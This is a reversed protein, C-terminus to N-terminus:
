QTTTGGRGEGRSSGDAGHRTVAFRAEDGGYRTTSARARMSRTTRGFRHAQAVLHTHADTSAVLGTSVYLPESRWPAVRKGRWSEMGHVPTETNGRPTRRSSEGESTEDRLEDRRAPSRHPSASPPSATLVCARVGHQSPAISLLPAPFASVLLQRPSRLFASCRKLTGCKKRM